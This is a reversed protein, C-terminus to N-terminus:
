NPTSSLKKNIDEIMKKLNIFLDMLGDFDHQRAKIEIQAATEYARVFGCHSLNLKLTQSSFILQDRRKFKISEQIYMMHKAHDQTYKDLPNLHFIDEEATLEPHSEPSLIKKASM